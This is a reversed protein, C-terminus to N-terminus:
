KTKKQSSTAAADASMKEVTNGPKNQTVGPYKGNVFRSHRLVNETGNFVISVAGDATIKNGDGNVMIQRCAGTVTVTNGNGNIMLRNFEDCKGSLPENRGNLNVPKGDLKEDGVIADAPDIPSPPPSPSRPPEPSSVYKEMNNIAIGSRTECSAAIMILFILLAVTKM